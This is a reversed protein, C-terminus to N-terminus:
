GHSAAFGCGGQMSSVARATGKRRRRRWSAAWRGGAVRPLQGARLGPFRGDVAAGLLEEPDGTGADIEGPLRRRAPRVRQDGHEVGADAPGIRLGLQDVLEIEIAALQGLRLTRRVAIVAVVVADEVDGVVRQVGRVLVRTEAVRAVVAHDVRFVEDEDKGVADVGVVAIVDVVDAAPNRRLRCRDARRLASRGRAPSDCSELASPLLPWPLTLQGFVHQELHPHAVAEDGFCVRERPTTNATSLPALTTCASPREVVGGEGLLRDVIRVALADDRGGGIPIRAGCSGPLWGGTSTFETVLYAL